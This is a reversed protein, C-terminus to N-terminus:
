EQIADPYFLSQSKIKFDRILVQGEEGTVFAIYKMALDYNVHAHKEPNVAMIHYPNFM